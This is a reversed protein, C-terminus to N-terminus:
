ADGASCESPRAVVEFTSCIKYPVTESPKFLPHVAMRIWILDSKGRPHIGLVCGEVPRGTRIVINLPHTDKPMLSGDAHFLDWRDSTPDGGLTLMQVVSLGLIREAAPNADTIRGQGDHFTVAVPMANFLLRSTAEAELASEQVSKMVSIDVFTIVVGEITNELTRYPRIRLWFFAGDKSQVELEKPILTDLVSQADPVLQGYGPLNSVINGLPRGIDSLILQIVQTVAPTYRQIRMQHDVFLTGIGTGSLLNNMDNNVQSLSSVKQQLETNVTALEENVSQLEEKSTELEENVSQMEENVSQM